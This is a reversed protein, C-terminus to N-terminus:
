RRLNLKWSYQVRRFVALNGAFAVLLATLDVWPAGVHVPAGVALPVYFALNAACHLAWPAFLGGTRWALLAACAAFVASEWPAPHLAVFPVAAVGYAVWPSRAGVIQPLAGRFIAEEAAAQFPVALLVGLLLRTDVAGNGVAVRWLGAAGFVAGSMLASGLLYRWSFGCGGLIDLPDRGAWKAAVFPAPLTCAVLVLPRLPGEPVGVVFSLAVGFFVALVVLYLLELLRRPWPVSRALTHM